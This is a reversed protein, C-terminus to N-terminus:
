FLLWVIVTGTTQSHRAPEVCEVQGGCLSQPVHCWVLVLPPVSFFPIGVSRRRVREWQWAGDDLRWGHYCTCRISFFFLFLCYPHPIIIMIHIVSNSASKKFHTFHHIITVSRYSHLWRQRAGFVCEKRQGHAACRRVSETLYFSFFPICAFSHFCAVFVFYTRLVLKAFDCCMFIAWVILKHYRSFTCTTETCARPCIALMTNIPSGWCQKGSWMPQCRDVAWNLPCFNSWCWPRRPRTPLM